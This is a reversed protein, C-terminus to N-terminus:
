QSKQRPSETRFLFVESGSCNIPQESHPLDPVITHIYFLTDGFYNITQFGFSPYYKKRLSMRSAKLERSVHHDAHPLVGPLTNTPRFLYYITCWM